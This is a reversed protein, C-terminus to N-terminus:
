TRLTVSELVIPGPTLTSGLRILATGRVEYARVGIPEAACAQAGLRRASTALFARAPRPAYGSRKVFARKDPIM